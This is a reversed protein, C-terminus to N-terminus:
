IIYLYKLTIGNPLALSIGEPCGKKGNPMALSIGELCGKIGNPMALSFGFHRKRCNQTRASALHTVAAARRGEAAIRRSSMRHAIM